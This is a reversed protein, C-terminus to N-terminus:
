AVLPPVVQRDILFLHESQLMPLSVKFKSLVWRVLRGVSPCSPDYSLKAGSYSFAHLFNQMNLPMSYPYLLLFRLKKM